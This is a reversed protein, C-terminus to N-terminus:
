CQLRGGEAIVLYLGLSSLRSCHTDCVIDLEMSFAAHM